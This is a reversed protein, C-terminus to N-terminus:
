GLYPEWQRATQLIYESPAETVVRNHGPLLIEVEWEALRLLSKKLEAGDAGYLDFRGIAYDAYIVDGPILIKKPEYYLAISGMSHGPIHIVKWSMGGIEITEGEELKRDVQFTFAGPEIGYQMQCMQQFMDMGYVTREDGKEIPAAELSHIWLEAEPIKDRIESLAGIHDFHTHTMIVRKIDKLEIGMKKISEMKYKGKGVLGPDILSLDRSSINGLVYTHSDPIMEDQGPIFHVADIIKPM